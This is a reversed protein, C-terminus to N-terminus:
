LMFFDSGPLRSTADQLQRLVRRGALIHPEDPELRIVKTHSESGYGMHTLALNAAQYGTVLAKEQSFSAHDSGKIWDGAAFANRFVTKAPLFDQHSGPRFHTVGRPFRVVTYDEVVAGKFSSEAVCLMDLVEKVVDEDSMSIYQNAHYFDAEIVTNTEERFEDHIANLDFYTWGTGSSHQPFGFCANSAFEIPVSRDFYLRVAVVDIATLNMTNRFQPRSALVKSSRVLGQMGSIGVAFIVSDCGIYQIGEKTDVSRCLVGTIKDKDAEDVKFETVRTGTRIDVGLEELRKVWPEFIMSSITGRPWVVDFAPTSHLIFFQLM